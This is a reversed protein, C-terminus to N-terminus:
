QKKEEKRENAEDWHARLFVAGICIPVVIMTALTLCGLVFIFDSM